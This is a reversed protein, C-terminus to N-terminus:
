SLVRTVDPSVTVTGQLFRVVEGSPDILELDYVGLAQPEGDVVKSYADWAPDETVTHDIFLNVTGDAGLTIGNGHTMEHWIAGGVKRRIQMRATWGTLDVRETGTPEVLSYAFAYPNDAGQAILLDIEALAERGITTM